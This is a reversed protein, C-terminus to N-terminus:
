VRAHAAHEAVTHHDVRGRQDRLEVLEARGADLGPGLRDADAEAGVEDQRVVLEEVLQLLPAGARDPGGLPADARGVLVLGPAAAHASAIEQVRGPQLPPQVRRELLRVRADHTEAALGERRRRDQGLERAVGLAQGRM